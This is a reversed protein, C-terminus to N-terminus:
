KNQLGPLHWWDGMEEPSAMGWKERRERLTRFLRPLDPNKDLPLRVTRGELASLYLANVVEIGKLGDLGTTRPSRRTAICDCFEELEKLYQWSVRLEEQPSWRGFPTYETTQVAAQTCQGRDASKHLIIRLPAPEASTSWDAWVLLAAQSGCIEYMEIPGRHNVHTMQHVSSVGSEHRLVAVVVDEVERASSITDVIGQVETVEGFWRRCLDVTHPGHDQFLGGGSSLQGRMGLSGLGACDDWTIRCTFIKGLVGSSVIETVREFCKNYPKMYGLMLVSGAEQCADIMRHCAEVTPAMPKECLIDKGARAAAVVQEEHVQPPSCIIVGEVEDDNLLDEYRTYARNAGLVTKGEEARSSNIDVVAVLQGARLNNFCIAGYLYSLSSGCGVLGLKVQRM